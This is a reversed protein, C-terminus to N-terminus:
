WVQCMKRNCSYVLVLVPLYVAVPLMAKERFFLCVFLVFVFFVGFFESSTNSGKNTGQTSTQFSQNKYDVDEYGLCCLIVSLVVAPFMRCPLHHEVVHVAPM